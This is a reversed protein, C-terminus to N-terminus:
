KIDERNSSKQRKLEKSIIRPRTRMLWIPSRIYTDKLNEATIPGKGTDLMYPVGFSRLSTMYIILAILTFIYGYFGLISSMILFMIRIVIVGSFQPILFNSIGTVATIMVIPASIFRATVAAEGLILAGVISVAQGITKPIRTGAERLIEFLIAMSLVEVITPVAVGQRASTISILLQTPILEQHFNVLSIYLAPTSTTLFLGFWRLFRNFSSFIYNNYYDENAQFHELFIFPMTLSFPTGDCIIAFRGELLKSAVVDPRETSYITRFPSLSADRILEEIYGSELIGDIQISDLRNIIEQLIKEQALGEIYCICIKTKTRTGLEKFKFKLSTTKIRRRILSLNINLSETFGDRPGRVTSESSPEEISRMKWGITDVILAEQSSAILLITSGYVLADVIENLNTSKKLESVGIINNEVVGILNNCQSQDLEYSMIPKIIHENIINKDVMYEIFIACFNYTNDGGSQFQRLIVTNDEVFIQKFININHELSPSLSENYHNNGLTDTNTIKTNDIM